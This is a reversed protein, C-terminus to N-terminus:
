KPKWPEPYAFPDTLRPQTPVARRPLPEAANAADLLLTALIVSAQKLDEIRLHDYTDLDSHHVRADYELPDQVLQFAPLGLASLLVHDTADTPQAVVTGAGLSEFPALWEKLVPVAGLNGEAYVGRVKGSGNDINFYAALDKFGPLAEVPFKDFYSDAGLEIEDPDTTPPRRALYKQVYAASGYLGQEEGAWLAFRISRKPRVGLSALIRAAEMVAVSGAGNDSAGDGAVWSDLHAGAMVYGAKADTGPIEAYINYAQTDGDEYHVRSDIELRVEGSKALRALRRYDEAAIEVSPIHPSRGPLHQSGEGHVLRGERMSMRASALAGEAALFADVKRDFSYEESTRRKHEPDFSPLTYANLKALDADTFRKFMPETADKPPEPWSYLVIKGALKGQWAAFDQPTRLPAVIIPAALVGQTPPTWAVPIAKLVLPRPSVMRVQASEIWWGRGFEFGEARVNKLGWGRFREQTWREAARMAPSNTMRGGIRDTLYEALEPLESHNFGADTIRALTTADVPAGGGVGGGAAGAGAAAVAAVLSLAAAAILGAARGCVGVCRRM